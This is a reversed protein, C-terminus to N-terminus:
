SWESCAIVLPCTCLEFAFQMTSDQEAHRKHRFTIKSAVEADLETVQYGNWDVETQGNTVLLETDIVIGRAEAPSRAACWYTVDAAVEYLRLPGTSPVRVATLATFLRKDNTNADRRDTFNACWDFVATRLEPPMHVTTRDPKAVDAVHARGGVHADLEAALGAKVSQSLRAPFDVDPSTELAPAARLRYWFARPQGPQWNKKCADSTAVFGDPHTEVLDLQELFIDRIIPVLIVRDNRLTVITSCLHMLSRCDSAQVVDYPRILVRRPERPDDRHNFPFSPYLDFGSLLWGEDVKALPAVLKDRMADLAAKANNVRQATDSAQDVAMWARKRLREIAVEIDALTARRTRKVGAAGHPHRMLTAEGRGMGKDDWDIVDPLEIDDTSCAVHKVDHTTM